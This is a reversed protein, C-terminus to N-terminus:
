VIRRCSTIKSGSKEIRAAAEKLPEARVAMHHANAHILFHEDSMIGVHGRWFVLDGRKLKAEEYPGIDQGLAREQMDTDRPCKMGAGIVCAQVLGSCDVGLGDRGGWLYPTGMFLAAVDLMTQKEGAGALHAGFVFGHVNEELEVTKFSPDEGRVTLRANFGLMALPPAKIDPKSYIFSRLVKLRHTPVPLTEEAPFYLDGLAVYGVYDDLVAQGWAWDDQRDYVVFDEGFILQTDMPADQAPARRLATSFRRVRASTGAVFRAAKVDDKLHLAAIDSRAPTLRPDRASAMM